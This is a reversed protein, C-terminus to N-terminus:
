AQFIGEFALSTMAARRDNLKWKLISFDSEVSATNAFITALGCGFQRLHKFTKPKAAEELADWGENFKTKFDQKDLVSRISDNLANALFVDRHEREAAEVQDLNWCKMLQDRRTGLVNEGFDRPTVLVLESPM